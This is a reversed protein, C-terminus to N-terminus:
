RRQDDDRDATGHHAPRKAPGERCKLLTCGAGAWLLPPKLPPRPHGPACPPSRAASSTCVLQLHVNLHKSCFLEADTRLQEKASAQAHFGMCACACVCGRLASQLSSGPPRAQAQERGEMCPLVCVCLCVCVYVRVCARMCVYVCVRAGESPVRCSAAQHVHESERGEGCPLMYMRTPSSPLSTLPVRSKCFPSSPPLATTCAKRRPVHKSRAIPGASPAETSHEAGQSGVRRRRRIQAICLSGPVCGANYVGMCLGGLVWEQRGCRQSPCMCARVLELAAGGGAGHAVQHQVVQHGAAGVDWCLGRLHAVRTCHATRHTSCRERHWAHLAQTTSALPQRPMGVRWHTLVQQGSIPMM